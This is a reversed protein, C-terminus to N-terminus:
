QIGEMAPLRCIGDRDDFFSGGLPQTSTEGPMAPRPRVDGRWASNIPHLSPPFGGVVASGALLAIALCPHELRLTPRHGGTTAAPECSWGWFIAERTAIDDSNTPLQLRCALDACCLAVTDALQLIAEGAASGDGQSRQRAPSCALSDPQRLHQNM